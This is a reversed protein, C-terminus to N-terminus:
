ERPPCRDAGTENDDRASIAEEAYFEISCKNCLALNAFRTTVKHAACFLKGCEFCTFQDCNRCLMVNCNDLSCPKMPMVDDDRRIQERSVRKTLSCNRCTVTLGRWIRGPTEQKM